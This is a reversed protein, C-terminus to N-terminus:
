LRKWPDGRLSRTREIQDEDVRVSRVVVLVEVPRDSEPPRASEDDHVVDDLPPRDQVRGRRVRSHGAEATERMAEAGRRAEEGDLDLGDAGLPVVPEREGEDGTGGGGSARPPARAGHGGASDDPSAARADVESVSTRESSATAKESTIRHGTAAAIDYMMAASTRQAAPARVRRSPETTRNRRTIINAM